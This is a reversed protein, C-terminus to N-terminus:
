RGHSLDRTFVLLPQQRGTGLNRRPDLVERLGLPDLAILEQSAIGMPTMLLQRNTRVQEAIEQDSLKHALNELEQTHLLLPLHALLRDFLKPWEIEPTKYNM